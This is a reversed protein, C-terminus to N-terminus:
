LIAKVDNRIQNIDYPTNQTALRFIEKWESKPSKRMQWAIRPILQAYFIDSEHNQEGKRM